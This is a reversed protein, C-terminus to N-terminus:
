ATRLPPSYFAKGTRMVAWLYRALKNAVAVIVVNAHNTILKELIWQEFQTRPQAKRQRVRWLYARAGHILITRLYANGKKSIKGLREKGGSSHQQPTFGLWAALDRGKRFRNVDGIMAVFASANLQGIGPITM